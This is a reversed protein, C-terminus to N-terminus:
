GYLNLTRIIKIFPWFALFTVPQRVAPGNANSRKLYSVAAKASVAGIHRTTAVIVLIAFQRYETLYASSALGASSRKQCQCELDIKPVSLPLIDTPSTM